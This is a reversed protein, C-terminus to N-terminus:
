NISLVEKAWGITYGVPNARAIITIVVMVAAIM